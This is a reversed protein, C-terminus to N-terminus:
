GIALRRWPREFRRVEPDNGPLVNSGGLEADGQLVALPLARMALNRMVRRKLAQLLDDPVPDPIRCVREQALTEAAIADEIESDTASTGRAYNRYVSVTIMM